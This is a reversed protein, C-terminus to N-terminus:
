GPFEALGFPRSPRVRAAASRVLPGIAILASFLLAIEIHYVFSYGVVNDTLAPGLAGHQALAGVADRIFGGLAIGCGAATAQVAGWAGLALGSNDGRDVDMALTLTSVAFLGGGFGILLTGTRFLLPSALAASFILRHPDAGRGLRRAALAFAAIAGLAQFATLTTTASVALHLIEGGYPELLVDQMTFAATGLGVAVLFRQRRGDGSFEAWREGFSIERGAGTTRSPDRAEQKWLAVINLGLTLMASGQVVQILHIPTFNRLLLGYLLAAAVTGLLLM